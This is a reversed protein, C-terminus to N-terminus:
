TGGFGLGVVYMLFSSLGGATITGELVQNGGFAFVLCLSTNM